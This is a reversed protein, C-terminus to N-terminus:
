LKAKNQAPPLGLFKTHRCTALLSGDEGFFDVSSYGLNKGIRDCKAVVTIKSGVPAASLYEVALHVSVGSRLFKDKTMMALTSVEDALVAYVGGHLKRGLNQVGPTVLFSVIAEGDIMKEVNATHFLEKLLDGKRDTGLVHPIIPALKPDILANDTM